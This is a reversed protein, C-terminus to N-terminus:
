LEIYFLTVWRMMAQYSSFSGESGLMFYVTFYSHAPVYMVSIKTHTSDMVDMWVNYQICPYYLKM